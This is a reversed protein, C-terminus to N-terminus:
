SAMSVHQQTTYSPLGHFAKRDTSSTPVKFDEQGVLDEKVRFYKFEEERGLVEPSDRFTFSFRSPDYSMWEPADDLKIELVAHKILRCPGGFLLIDGSRLEVTREEDTNLHKFGFVCTAGISLNVVPHDSKGDNEYIDRHWVLGESTTYLNLLVHTCQMAPMSTDAARSTSVADNSLQILDRPFRTAADYIRGRSEGTNLIKEGEKNVTYFEDGFDKAMAAIRQCAEDDIFNRLIVLGPEVVEVRKKQSVSITALSLCDPAAMLSWAM